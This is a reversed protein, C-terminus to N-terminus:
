VVTDPHIFLRGYLLTKVAGGGDTVQGEHYYIGGLASTDGAIMAVSVQGAAADVITAARTVLATGGPAQAIAWSLTCKTLDCPFTFTIAATDGSFMDLDLHNAAAAQPTPLTPLECVALQEYWLGGSGPMGDTSTTYFMYLKGQHEVVEPDAVQGNHWGVGESATERMLLPNCDITWPGFPNLASARLLDTPLMSPYGGLFYCYYVGNSRLLTPSAAECFETGLVPNTGLKLFMGDMTPGMAIGLKMVASATSGAEYMIYCTGNDDAWFETNGFWLSDWDPPTGLELVTNVYTWSLGDNNPSTFHDVQSAYGEDGVFSGSVLCHYIDDIVRVQMRSYHDAPGDGVGAALPQDAGSTWPGTLTPSTVYYASPGGGSWMQWVTGNWHVSCEGTMGAVPGWRVWDGNYVSSSAYAASLNAKDANYNARVQAGGLAIDYVSLHACSSASQGIGTWGGLQSLAIAGIANASMALPEGQSDGDIYFRLDTGDAVGVYHHMLGDNYAVAGAVSKGVGGANVWFEPRRNALRIDVGDSFDGDAAVFISLNSTPASTPFAAWVEITFVKSSLVAALDAVATALDVYDDSGDFVCRYPSAASGNGAWGSAATGAMNTLTGDHGGSGTDHWATTFVPTNVGPGTGVNAKSADLELVAGAVRASM